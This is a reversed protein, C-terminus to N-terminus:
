KLLSIIMVWLKGSIKKNLYEKFIEPVEKFNSKLFSEVM